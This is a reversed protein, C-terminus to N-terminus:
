IHSLEHFIKRFFPGGWVGISLVGGFLMVADVSERGQKTWYVDQSTSGSRSNM